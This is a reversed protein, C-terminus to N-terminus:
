PGQKGARGYVIRCKAIRRNLVDVVFLRDRWVSLGSITGFPLEPHPHESGKGLCDMNGYSGFEGVLKGTACNIVQVSYRTAAFLYGHHDLTQHQLSKICHCPEFIVGSQGLYGQWPRTWIADGGNPAFKSLALYQDWPRKEPRHLVYLNGQDDVQLGRVCDLKLLGRQKLHGDASYVNVQRHLAVYASVPREKADVDLKAVYYINGHRDVDMGHYTDHWFNVQMPYDVFLSNTGTAPFPIPKGQRDFRLLEVGDASLKWRYVRGDKGFISDIFLPEEPYRFQRDFRLSGWPSTMKLDRSDFFLPPWKKLVDGDQNIRYVTGFQKMRHNSDDEVYVDGTLPDINLIPQDGSQRPCSLARGDDTWKANVSLDDGALQLLDGWGTGNAVWVLPPSVGADVAIQLVEPHLESSVALLEPEQWSKLKILKRPGGSPRRARTVLDAQVLPLSRELYTSKPRENPGILVYLNRQDDIALATPDFVPHQKGEHQYHTIAAVQQGDRTLVALRNNGADAVILHDGDLVLGSPETFDGFSNQEEVKVGAHLRSKWVRSGRSEEPTVKWHYSTEQASVEWYYALRRTALTSQGASVFLTGDGDCCFYPYYLSRFPMYNKLDQALLLNQTWVVSEYPENRGAHYISTWGDPPFSGDPRIRWLTGRYVNSLILDGNPALTIKQPLNWEPGYISLEGACVEFLLPVALEASGERAMTRCLDGVSSRPLSPDFPMITRLYRGQRDFARIEPVGRAPRPDSLVYLEGKVQNVALDWIFGRAHPDGKLLFGELELTVEGTTGPHVSGSGLQITQTKQQALLDRQTKPAARYNSHPRAYEPAPTSDLGPFGTLCGWRDLNSPGGQWSHTEGNPLDTRLLNVGIQSAVTKNKNFIRMPLAFEVAWAGEGQAVASEFTPQWTPDCWPPDIEHYSCTLQGGNQPTIRIRYYSSADANTDILLELAEAKKPRPLPKGAWHAALLQGANSAAFTALKGAAFSATQEPALDTAAGPAVCIVGVFLHDTDRLFYARTAHQPNDTRSVELPGTRAASNWCTDDLKGDIVPKSRLEPVLLKAQHGAYSEVAAVRHFCLVAGLMAVPICCRQRFTALSM